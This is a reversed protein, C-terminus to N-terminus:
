GNTNFDRSILSSAKSASINKGTMKELTEADKRFKGLLSSVSRLRASNLTLNLATGKFPTKLYRKKNESLYMGVEGSAIFFSGGEKCLRSTMYLGYGTNAWIDYPNIKNGKHAKGSIGPMLSLNLAEHDDTVTLHPNESLAERIGIGHDILALEAINKSRVYQACFGFQNAKSHEVVNRMIERISYSLADFLDGSSQRVLIEAMNQAMKDILEEVQELNNVTKKMDDVGYIRIPIYTDSGKAEGPFKGYDMGLSKFFGMHAAYSCEEYNAVEFNADPHGLVYRRIESSLFLLAFPSIWQVNSFNFVYRKAEPLVKLQCAFEITNELTCWRPMKIEICDM